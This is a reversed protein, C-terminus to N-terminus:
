VSTVTQWGGATRVRLKGLSTNFYIGGTFATPDASSNKLVFLQNTALRESLGLDLVNDGSRGIIKDIWANEWEKDEAGLDQNSNGNPVFDTDCILSAPNGSGDSGGIGDTFSIRGNANLLIARTQSVNSIADVSLMSGFTSDEFLWEVIDVASNYKLLRLHTLPAVGGPDFAWYPYDPSSLSDSLSQGIILNNLANYTGGDVWGLFAVNNGDIVARLYANDSDDSVIEIYDNPSAEATIFGDSDLTVNNGTLTDSGISWGGITGSIARLVGASSVRFPASAFAANGLWMNGNIDVHFSTSDSGGIDITSASLAGRFVGNNFEVNGHLDIKWGMNGTSFNPSSMADTMRQGFQTPLEEVKKKLLDLQAQLSELTIVDPM